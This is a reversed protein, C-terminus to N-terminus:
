SVFFFLIVNLTANTIEGVLKAFGIIHVKAGEAEFQARVAELREAAAAYDLPEGTFPEVEMLELRILAASSDYSALKGILGANQADERIDEIMEPTLSQATVTGPILKHAHIGEEDIELIRLNPTWFSTVSTRFVGPVYFLEDTLRYLTELFEKNWIDGSPAEIAVIIGNPGPLQERYEFFTEIFPHGSPLQKEFGADIEVESARWFSVITLLLLLFLILVRNRFVVAEFKVMWGSSSPQEQM